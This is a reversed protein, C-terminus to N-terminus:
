KCAVKDFDLIIKGEYTYGYGHLRSLVSQFFIKWEGRNKNVLGNCRTCLACCNQPISNKRNYDIHHVALRRKYLKLNDEEHLNCLLCVYRDRKRIYKKFTKNFNLDYPEFSKGGRWSPNRRGRKNESICKREGCTHRRNFYCPNIEFITKCIVCRKKIKNVLGHNNKGQMRRSIDPRKKGYFPHNKGQMRKSHEPRQKGYFPHNKGSKQKSLKRITRRSHKKGYWYAQEGSYYKKKYRSICKKDPCTKRKKIYSAKQGKYVVNLNRKCIKCKM